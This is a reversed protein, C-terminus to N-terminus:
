PGFRVIRDGAPALAPRGLQAPDFTAPSAPLNLAAATVQLRTKDRTTENRYDAQRPLTQDGVKKLSVLGFSKLVRGNKGLLETQMIANYQADLYARVATIEGDSSALAGPARFLFAHAPRGLVRTVREVTVNPWNLFPMQLDFPTVEVGPIVPALAAAPELPVARGEALRWAMPKEGRQVLLAHVRGDGDNVEVRTVIGQGNRGGWLRGRFTKEAGRRPLSRLEFELYFQGPIGAERVQAILQAAEQPDPLGFQALEPPRSPANAGFAAPILLSCVFFARWSRDPTIRGLFRM